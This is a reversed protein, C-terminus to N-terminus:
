LNPGPPRAGTCSTGECYASPSESELECGKGNTARSSSHLHAEELCTCSTYASLLWSRLKACGAPPARRWVLSEPERESVSSILFKTLSTLKYLLFM